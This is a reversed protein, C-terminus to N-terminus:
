KIVEATMKGDEDYERDTTQFLEGDHYEEMHFTKMVSSGPYYTQEGTSRVVTGDSITESNDFVGLTMNQDEDFYMESYYKVSEGENYTFIKEINFVGITVVYRNMKGTESDFYVDKKGVANELEPDTCLFYMQEIIIGDRTTVEHALESYYGEVYGYDIDDSIAPTDECGVLSILMFLAAFVAFARRFM